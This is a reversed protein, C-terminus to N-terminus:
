VTDSDCYSIYWDGRLPDSKEALAKVGFHLEIPRLKQPMPMFGATLFALYYPSHTFHWALAADCHEELFIQVVHNLLEHALELDESPRRSMLEVVYGIRGEHKEMVNIVVFGEVRGNKEAAFVRYEQGPKALRWTLYKSDRVLGVGFAQRFGTWVEDLPIDTLVVERIAFRELIPLSPVRPLQFTQGTAKKLFYGLNLPRVLFPVPDLQSWGLKGFFGPASNANPFGYVFGVDEAKTRDFLGQALTPFLGRGRFGSDILTDLSQICVIERDRVQFYQPLSAYVGVVVGDCEAVDVYTFGTPSQLYQWELESIRREWGNRVFCDAIPAWAEERNLARRSISRGM